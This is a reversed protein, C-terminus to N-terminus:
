GNLSFYDRLIEANVSEEVLTRLIDEYGMMAAYEMCTMQGIKLRVNVSHGEQFVFFM